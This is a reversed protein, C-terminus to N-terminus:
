KSSCKYDVFYNIKKFFKIIIQIFDDYDMEKNEILVGFPEGKYFNSNGVEIARGRLDESRSYISYIKNLVLYYFRNGITDIDSEYTERNDGLIKIIADKLYTGNNIIKDIPINNNENSKITFYYYIEGQTFHSLKLYNVSKSEDIVKQFISSILYNKLNYESFYM